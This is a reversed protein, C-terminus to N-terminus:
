LFAMWLPQVILLFICFMLLLSGIIIIIIAAIKSGVSAKNQNSKRKSRSYVFYALAVLSGGVIIVIIVAYLLAREIDRYSNCDPLNSQSVTANRIFIPIGSMAQLQQNETQVDVIVQPVAIKESFNSPVTITLPIDIGSAGDNAASVMAPLEGDVKAWTSHNGRFTISKVTFQEGTLLCIRMDQTLTQGPEM